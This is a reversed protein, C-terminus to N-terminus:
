IMILINIELEFLSILYFALLLYYKLIHIGIIIGGTM